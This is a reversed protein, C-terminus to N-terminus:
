REEATRFGALRDEIEKWYDAHEEPDLRGSVQEAVAAAGSLDGAEALRDMLLHVARNERDAFAGEGFVELSERLLRVADPDDGLYDAHQLLTEALEVRCNERYDPHLEEDRWDTRLEEALSGFAESDAAADANETETGIWLIARIALAAMTLVGLERWAREARGFALVASEGDGIRHLLVAALHAARAYRTPDPHQVGGDMLRLAELAHRSGTEPDGLEDYSDALLVQIDVSRWQEDEDAESLDALVEEFVLVAAEHHAQMAMAIGALRRAATAPGSSGSRDYHHAAKVAYLEARSGLGLNIASEAAAMHIAALTNDATGPRATAIGNEAVRLADEHRDEKRLVATYYLASVVTEIAHGATTALEHAARIAAHSDEATEALSAAVLLLRVRTDSVGREDSRPAMETDLSTIRERLQPDPEEGRSRIAEVLASYVATRARVSQVPDSEAFREAAELLRAAEARVDEIADGTRMRLTAAEMTLARAERGATRFLAVAREAWAERRDAGGSGNFRAVFVEAEDAPDLAVGIREALDGLREWRELRDDTYDASAARAEGLLRELDAATSEVPEPRIERPSESVAVKLGLPVHSHDGAFEVREASRRSQTDNGNRRDFRECIERRETDLRDHLEDARERRGDPGPLEVEGRGLAALALCTLQVAELLRLRFMPDLGLTLLHARAALIEVARAENGTLACFRVHDVFPLILEDKDRSIQHGHLHNARAQDLRGLAVLPHLSAALSVHPQTPCRMGDQLMPAWLELAREHEGAEAYIAGIAHRVCPECDDIYDSETAHLAALARAAREDDGLHVAFDHEVRHSPYLSRGAESYRRRMRDIFEEISALPVDPRELMRRAMTHLWWYIRQLVNSGIWEPATDLNRLLRGFATIQRMSDESWRYASVIEILVENLLPQEGTADVAELLVELAVTRAEGPPQEGIRYFTQRLESITDPM